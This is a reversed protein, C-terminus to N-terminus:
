FGCRITLGVSRYAPQGFTDVGVGSPNVGSVQEPDYPAKLFLFFLNSGTVAIWFDKVVKNKVSLRYALYCERLRVSTADYLYLEDLPGKGGVARYFDSAQITNNWLIGNETVAKPVTVLRDNAASRESVGMQDLYGNTKSLVVGGFKGDILFSFTYRKVTFSNRIGAILKPNPNGLYSNGKFYPIGTAANVIVYGAVDRLLQKGYLDGYSGGQKLVGEFNDTGAYLIYYQDPSPNLVYKPDFLKKIKNRNASLNLETSWNVFRKKSNKYSIMLEFGTNQINGANMDAFGGTGLGPPVAVRRFYQNIINSKYVTVDVGIKNNLLQLQIGAEVSKNKEPKLYYGPVNLTSSAPASSMGGNSFMYLPNTSFPAIDNGVIAYSLRLKAYNITSPLRVMESVVASTGVSYYNYGKRRTPTFALTSSWDNRNALDLFLRNKYHLQVNAFLSQIQRSVASNRIDYSGNMRDLASELFVNPVTPTGSINTAKGRQDQISVGATFNMDLHQSLSREGLFILDGYTTTNSSSGKRLNGNYNALTAQSTAFIRREFESSFVNVNGRAQVTLWSRLQYKLSVSAYLNFNNNDVANRNLVWYPNQQYDQGGWGGMAQDKDYNINWWNQANLYRSSSFYEYTKYSSFDLGRPFLYLGTLPNFYIGPTLRNHVRQISGLFSGEVALKNNLLKSNQKLSITHQRFTSTPVIGTNSTNSYSVYNSNQENGASLSVSNMFTVGTQFFDRVYNGDSNYVGKTGWSDESGPNIASSPNTQGYSYQLRPLVSVRDFSVTSSFDIRGIGPKGKKTTILIVGNSGQSGYLASASAGKLISIGEIDDPNLTSLIDGGDPVSNYLGADPGGVPNIIPMGDIVYLPQSNRTSKDGRLVVRVSGGVGASTRNIQVGAVKGNLSNMINTNKVTSLETGPIHQTSYTLTRSRRSIGLATVTIETLNSNIKQLRIAVNETNNNLRIFQETTHYGIYSVELTYSGFPIDDFVFRGNKNTVDSKEIQKITVSAGELLENNDGWVYGILKSTKELVPSIKEEEKEKIIIIRDIIVYTLPFGKLCYDLLESITVDKMDVQVVSANRIVHNDYLISFGTQEQVLAFVKKLSINKQSLSIRQSFASVNFLLFVLLIFAALRM